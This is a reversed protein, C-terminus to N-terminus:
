AGESSDPMVAGQYSMLADYRERPGALIAVVAYEVPGFRVATRHHGLAMGEPDLPSGILCALREIEACMDADTGRPVFVTADVQRPVPVAPRGELFEALARLGTILRARHEHDPYAM